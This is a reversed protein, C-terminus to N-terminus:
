VYELVTMGAMIIIMCASFFLSEKTFTYNDFSYFEGTFGRCKMAQHVRGARKSARVFLMGALYAFTRYSHMNTGSRFGRIKMATYLRAYENEIVFIYRYTMLILFILKGNLGMSGLAHGLTSISMSAVLAMFLLLISLSKLTIMGTIVLGAEPIDFKGITFAADGAFSIPMFIWLLLLFWFLPKLRKVVMKLDLRAILVLICSFVLAMVLVAFQEAIANLLSYGLAACIRARPDLTHIRSTGTAFLEKIM